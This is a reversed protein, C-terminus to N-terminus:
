EQQARAYDNWARKKADSLMQWRRGIEAMVAGRPVKEGTLQAAGHMETKVKQSIDALYYHYGTKQGRGGSTQSNKTSKMLSVLSITSPITTGDYPKTSKTELREVAAEVKNSQVKPPRGRKKPEELKLLEKAKKIDFGFQESLLKLQAITIASMSPLSNSSSPHNARTKKRRFFFCNKKGRNCKGLFEM